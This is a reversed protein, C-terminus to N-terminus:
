KLISKLKEIKIENVKKITDRPDDPLAEIEVIRKKLRKNITDFIQGYTEPQSIYYNNLQVFSLSDLKYKELVLKPSINKLTSDSDYFSRSSNLLALDYLLNTMEEKELFKDPKDIAESCSLVFVSLLFLTIKKM